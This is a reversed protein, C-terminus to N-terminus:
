ENADFNFKSLEFQRNFEEVEKFTAVSLSYIENETLARNFITVNRINGYFPHIFEGQKPEAGFYVKQIERAGLALNEHESYLESNIYIELKGSSLNVSLFYYKGPELKFLDYFQASRGNNYNYNEAWLPQGFFDGTIRHGAVWLNFHARPQLSDQASFIMQPLRPDTDSFRIWMSMNMSTASVEPFDVSLYAIEGTKTAPLFAAGNNGFNINSAELNEGDTLRHEIISDPVAVTQRQRKEQCSLCLLSM